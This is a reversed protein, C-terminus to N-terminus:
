RGHNDSLEAIVEVPKGDQWDRLAGYLQIVSLTTLLFAFAGITHSALLLFPELPLHASRIIGTILGSLLAAPVTVFVCIQLLIWLAPWFRGRLVDRSRRLATRYRKRESVVAIAFFMTRLSYVFAPLLLPLLFLVAGCRQVLSATDGIKLTETTLLLAIGSPIIATCAPSSVLFLLSPLFFLLSWELTILSRLLSTLLLPLILKAAEKRLARFSTRSRGSRNHILRRGVLLTAATGWLILLSVLASLLFLTATDLGNQHLIGRDWPFLPLISQLSAPLILLWLLVANLAPQKRYFLWSTKILEIASPLVM